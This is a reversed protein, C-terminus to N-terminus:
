KVVKWGDKTNELDYLRLRQGNPTLTYAVVRNQTVFEIDDVRDVVRNNARSPVVVHNFYDQPTKLVIKQSKLAASDSIQSLYESSTIESFYATDLHNVWSRYDKRRIIQNLESIFQQVDTKTTNYVEQTVTGPDFVPEPNGQASVVVPPVEVPDASKVPEPTTGCSVALVLAFLFVINLGKM